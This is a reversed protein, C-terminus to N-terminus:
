VANAVIAAAVGGVVSAIISAFGLVLTRNLDRFDARLERIEGRILGHEEHNRKEAEEIRAGLRTEVRNFRADIQEFRADVQEFRADVQDFRATLGDIKQELVLEKVADM